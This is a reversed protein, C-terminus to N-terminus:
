FKRNLISLFETVAEEKEIWNNKESFHDWLYNCAEDFDEKSNAQDVATQYMEEDMVFLEKIFYFKQQLSIGDEFNEIPVLQAAADREVKPIERKIPKQEKIEEPIELIKAETTENIVEKPTPEEEKIEDVPLELDIGEFELDDIFNRKIDVKEVAPKTETLNIFNNPVVKSIQDVFSKEEELLNIHDFEDEIVKMLVDLRVENQMIKPNSLFSQIEKSYLKLFKARSVIEANSLTNGKFDFIETQLFYVPSELYEFSQHLAEKLLM